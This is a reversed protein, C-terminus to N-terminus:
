LEFWKERIKWNYDFLTRVYYVEQDKPEKDFIYRYAKLKNESM